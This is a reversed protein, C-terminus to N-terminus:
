DVSGELEPLTSEPRAAATSKDARKNAFFGRPRAGTTVVEHQEGHGPGQPAEGAHLAPRESPEVGTLLISYPV